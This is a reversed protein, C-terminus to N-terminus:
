FTNTRLYHHDTHGVQGVWVSVIDDVKDLLQLMQNQVYAPMGLEVVHRVVFQLWGLDWTPTADYRDGSTLPTTKAKRKSRRPTPPPTPLVSTSHISQDFLRGLIYNIQAPDLSLELRSSTIGNVLSLIPLTKAVKSRKCAEQLAQLCDLANERVVKHPSALPILLSPIM